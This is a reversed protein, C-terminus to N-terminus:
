IFFFHWRSQSHVINDVKNQKIFRIMTNVERPEVDGLSILSCKRCNCPAGDRTYCHDIKKLVNLDRKFDASQKRAELKKAELKRAEVKRAEEKVRDMAPVAAERCLHVSLLGKVEIAIGFYYEHINIM